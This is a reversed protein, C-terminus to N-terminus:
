IYFFYLYGLVGAQLLVGLINVVVFYWHRTKHRFLLMGLAGGIGGGFFSFLLLVKEPIRWAGLKAKIKDILYLLLTLASIGGFIYLIIKLLEM